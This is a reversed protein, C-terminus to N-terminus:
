ACHRSKHLLLLSLSSLLFDARVPSPLLSVINPASASRQLTTPLLLLLSCPCLAASHFYISLKCLFHQFFLSFFLPPSLFQCTQHDRSPLIELSLDPQTIHIYYKKGGISRSTRQCIGEREGSSYYVAAAECCLPSVCWCHLM